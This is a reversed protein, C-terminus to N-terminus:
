ADYSGVERRMRAFSLLARELSSGKLLVLSVLSRAHTVLGQDVRSLDILVRSLKEDNAYTKIIIDRLENRTTSRDLELDVLKGFDDPRAIMQKTLDRIKDPTLFGSALLFRYLNLPAESEDLDTAWTDRSEELADVREQVSSLFAIAEQATVYGRDILKSLALAADVMSTNIWDFGALVEELPVHNARAFSIAPKLDSEDCIRGAVLLDQLELHIVPRMLEPTVMLPMLKLKDVADGFRMGNMRVDTQCALATDVIQEPIKLDICLVRGLPLGCLKQLSLAEQLQAADILEATVLLEGLRVSELDDAACGHAALAERIHWGRRKAMSFAEQVQYLEVSGRRFLGHLELLMSLDDDTLLGRVVLTRGLPLGVERSAKLAANLKDSPLVDLVCLFDGIRVERANDIDPEATILDGPTLTSM